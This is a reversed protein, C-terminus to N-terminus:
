QIGGQRITPLPIVSSELSPPASMWDAYYNHMLEETPSQWQLIATAQAAAEMAIREEAREREQVGAVVVLPIGAAAVVAARKRLWAKRARQHARGRAVTEAFDRPAGANRERLAAFGDELPHDRDKM